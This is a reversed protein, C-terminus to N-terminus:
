IREKLIGEGHIRSAGPGRTISDEGTGMKISLARLEDVVHVNRVMVAPDLTLAVPAFNVIGRIGAAALREAATQAAEPPVCLLAMDISFREVVEPIKYAPYLPVPSKLIEVRNVNTDFGATLVFEELDFARANLYASGLRGLGVVCFRRSRELGLANKIAPGLSEATYGTKGGFSGELYSIDKRITHRSWGTLVELAGSTVPSGTHKQLFRMLYLLREKAPEPIRIM